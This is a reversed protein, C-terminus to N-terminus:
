IQPQKWYLDLAIDACRKTFQAGTEGDGAAVTEEVLAAPCFEPSLIRKAIAVRAPLELLGFEVAMDLRGPRTSKGKADPIGLAPDLKSIDNATVVTLIGDAPEVGSICNLLCDLTLPASLTRSQKGDGDGNEIGGEIFVRDLDELLVMVPAASRTDRWINVLDENTMTALELIYVPLDLEQAIARACSTKGTGPQGHFLMGLRWSLGRELFWAKSKLWRRVGEIAVDIEKGYSLHNFPSPPIPHGLEETKWRLPITGIEGGTPALEATKNSYQSPENSKGFNKNRTGFFRSIRHRGPGNRGQMEKNYKEVAESLVKEFDYTGRLYSVKLPGDLQNPRENSGSVQSVFVPTFGNFFVMGKGPLRFAVGTYDGVPRVFYNGFTYARMGVKLSKYNYWCHRVYIDSLCPNNLAVTAVFYSGAQAFMAKLQSWFAGVAAAGAVIWAYGAFQGINGIQM